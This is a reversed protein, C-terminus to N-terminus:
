FPETNDNAPPTTGSNSDSTYPNTEIYKRNKEFSVSETSNSAVEKGSKNDQARYFSHPVRKTRDKGDWYYSELQCLAVVEQGNLSAWSPINVGTGNWFGCVILFDSLVKKPYDKQSNPFFSHRITYDKDDRLEIALYENGARSTKMEASAIKLKVPGAEPGGSNVDEIPGDYNFVSM